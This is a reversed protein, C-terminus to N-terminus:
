IKFLYSEVIEQCVFDISDSFLVGKSIGFISLQNLLENKIRCPIIFRSVIQEDNKSIPDIKSVFGLESNNDEIRNNFLIYSGQQIKQRPIFENARVFFIKSCCSKIWKDAVDSKITGRHVAFYTQEVIQKYFSFLSTWSSVICRYSDAIANMIPYTYISLEEHKFVIVEGDNKESCCAFYLAVLPNSTIDLLRTPIGYHQLLALLNVPTQNNDFVSPLKMKASEILSREYTEHNEYCSNRALSPLLEYNKNSQGRFFLKVNYGLGQVISNINIVSKIYNSLSKVEIIKDM